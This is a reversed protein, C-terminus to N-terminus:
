FEISIDTDTHTPHWASIDVPILMLIQQLTSDRIVVLFVLTIDQFLRTEILEWNVAVFLLQAFPLSPSYFRFFFDTFIEDIFQNISSTRQNGISIFLSSVGIDITDGQGLEAQRQESTATLKPPTERWSLSFFFWM